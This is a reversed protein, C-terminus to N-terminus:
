RRCGACSPAAEATLWVLPLATVVSTSLVAQAVAHQCLATWTSYRRRGAPATCNKVFPLQSVWLAALGLLDAAGGTRDRQFRTRRPPKVGEGLVIVSFQVLIQTGAHAFHIGVGVQIGRGSVGLTVTFRVM